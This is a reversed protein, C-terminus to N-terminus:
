VLAPNSNIPGKPVFKMSIKNLICFIENMFISRFINDWIADMKDLPLQTLENCHETLLAM